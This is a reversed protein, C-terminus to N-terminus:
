RDPAGAFARHQRNYEAMEADAAAHEGAARLREIEALWTQADRRWSPAQDSKAMAPAATDMAPRTQEAEVSRRAMTRASESAATSAPSPPPSSPPAPPVVPESLATGRRSAAVPPAAPLAEAAADAETVPASVAAVTDSAPSDLRFTANEVGVEAVQRQQQEHGAQFVIALGLVLTAAIAVPAAWRSSRYLPMEPRPEIAERAQRLVLRDIEPPPELGDDVDRFLPRRRRLFEEFEPDPDTM